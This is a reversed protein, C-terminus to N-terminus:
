RNYNNQLGINTLEKIKENQAKVISVLYSEKANSLEVLSKLTDNQLKILEDNFKNILNKKENTLEVNKVYKKELVQLKEEIAKQSDNPNSTIQSQSPPSQSPASGSDDILEVSM